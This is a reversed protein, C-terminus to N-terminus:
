PKIEREERTKDTHDTQIAARTGAKGAQRPVDRALPRNQGSRKNCVFM